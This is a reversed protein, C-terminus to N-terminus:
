ESDLLANLYDHRSDMRSNSIARIKENSEDVTAFTKRLRAMADAHSVTRGARMDDLGREIGESIELERAVDDAL